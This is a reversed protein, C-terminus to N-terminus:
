TRRDASSVSRWYSLVANLPEEAKKKSEWRMDSIGILAVQIRKAIAGTHWPVIREGTHVKFLAEHKLRTSGGRTDWLWLVITRYSSAGPWHGSTTSGLDGTM